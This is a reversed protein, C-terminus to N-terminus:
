IELAPPFAIRLPACVKHLFAGIRSRPPTYQRQHNRHRQHRLYNSPKKFATANSIEHDLVQGLFVTDRALAHANMTLICGPHALRTRRLVIAL